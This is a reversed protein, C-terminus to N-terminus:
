SSARRARGPRGQGPGDLIGAVIQVRCGEGALDRLREAIALATPRGM